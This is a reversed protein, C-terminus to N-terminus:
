GLIGALQKAYFETKVTADLHLMTCSVFRDRSPPLTHWPGNSSLCLVPAALAKVIHLNRFNGTADYEALISVRFSRGLGLCPELHRSELNSLLRHISILLSATVGEAITDAIMIGKARSPM